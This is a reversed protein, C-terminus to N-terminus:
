SNAQTTTLRVCVGKAVVFQSPMDMPSGGLEEKTIILYSSDKILRWAAQNLAIEKREEGDFVLLPRIEGDRKSQSWLQLSHGTPVEWNEWKLWLTEGDSSTLATLIPKDQEDVLVAVYDANLLASTQNLKITNSILLTSLGLLLAFSFATAMKWPLIKEWFSLTSNKKPTAARQEITAQIKKFTKANPALEPLNEVAPMLASEWFRVAKILTDDSRLQVEFAELEENQLTGLVYEFALADKDANDTM